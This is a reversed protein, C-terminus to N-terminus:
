FLSRSGDPSIVSWFGDSSGGGYAAQTPNVTPFNTSSTSGYVFGNNSSDLQIGYPVDIGSGGLYTSYVLGLGDPSIKSIFVNYGFGGAGGFSPQLPNVTPFDMSDTMGTIYAAGTSDLVIANGFDSGSGSGGLYTSYVLSQGDPSFKSIIASFNESHNNTGQIPDQTPFDHAYTDGVVYVSGNADVTIGGIETSATGGFYTSYVVEPDIVLPKGRDYSVLDFALLGDQRLVYEGPVERRAGRDDQYIRPAHQSVIGVATHILLNGAEDMDVKDAGDVSLAIQKPDAGPAVNFDYELNGENGYYILDIGPYVNEYKVKAFSPVNTHWNKPDNGLFYNTTGPLPEIGTIRVDPNANVTRLHVVSSNPAKNSAEPSRRREKATIHKSPEFVKMVLENPTLFMVGNQTDASFRVQSDTQGTNLEFRLPLSKFPIGGGGAVTGKVGQVPRANRRGASTSIARSPRPLASGFWALVLVLTFVSRGILSPRNTM